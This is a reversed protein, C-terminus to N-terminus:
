DADCSGALASAPAAARGPIGGRRGPANRVNAGGNVAPLRGAWVFRYPREGGSSASSDPPAKMGMIFLVSPAGISTTMKLISRLGVSRPLSISSITVLTTVLM